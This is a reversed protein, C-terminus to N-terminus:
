KNIRQSKRRNSKRRRHNTKKHHRSKHRKSKHTGGKYTGQPIDGDDSNIMRQLKQLINTTTITYITARLKDRSVNEIPIRRHEDTHLYEINYLADNKGVVVAPRRGKNKPKIVVITGITLDANNWNNNTDLLDNTLEETMM